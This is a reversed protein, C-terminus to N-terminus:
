TVEIKKYQSYRTALKRLAFKCATKIRKKGRHSGEKLITVAEPTAMAELAGVVCLQTIQSKRSSFLTRKKLLSHFLINVEENSNLACYNLFVRKEPRTKKDFDKRKIVEKIRSQAASNGSYNLNTVAAIRIQEEKDLLMECLIEDGEKDHINKLAQITELRISTDKHTAFKKLHPLSSTKNIKGLITIIERTSSAQGNQSLEVLTDIHEEGIKHLLFTISSKVHPEETKGWINFVTPISDPCLLHLYDLFPDINEVKGNSFLNELMQFASQCRAKKIIKDLLPQKDNDQEPVMDRLDFIQNLIISAQSFNAKELTDQLCLDLVNLTDSFQEIRDELFLIEFLLVILKRIRSAERDNAVLRDIEPFDSKTIVAAETVKNEKSITPNAGAALDNGPDVSSSEMRNNIDEQDEQTLHIKGTSLKDKEPILDSGTNNGGIGKDLFEDLAFYRIHGFDKEWLSNIIDSEEEPLDANEKITELFEGIEKLDLGQHFSLERMGDKYLLFPLSKKKEKEIDLTEKNFSLSFEQVGIIM